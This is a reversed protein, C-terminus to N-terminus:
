LKGIEAVGAIEYFDCEVIEVGADNAKEASAISAPNPVFYRHPTSPTWIVLSPLQGSRWPWDALYMRSENYLRLKYM